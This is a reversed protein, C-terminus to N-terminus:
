TLLKVVRVAVACYRIAAGITSMARRGRAFLEQAAAADRAIRAMAADLRQLDVARRRTEELRRQANKLRRQAGVVRVIGFLMLFLAAACFVGLVIWGALAPTM